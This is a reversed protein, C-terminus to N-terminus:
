RRFQNAHVVPVCNKALKLARLQRRFAKSIEVAYVEKSTYKVIELLSLGSGAGVECVSDTKLIHLQQVSSTAVRANGNQM